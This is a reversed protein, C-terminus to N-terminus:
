MWDVDELERIDAEEAAVDVQPACGVAALVLVTALVLFLKKM